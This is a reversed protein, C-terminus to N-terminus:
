HETGIDIVEAEAVTVTKDGSRIEYYKTTEPHAATQWICRAVITGDFGGFVAVNEGIDYKFATEM